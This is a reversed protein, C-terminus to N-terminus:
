RAQTITTRYSVTVLGDSTASGSYTGTGKAGKFSGTGNTIKLHGDTLTATGDPNYTVKTKHTGSVTGREYYAKFTGSVADASPKNVFTIAGDGYKRDVVIGACRMGGDREPSLRHTQITGASRATRTAGLAASAGVFACLLVCLGVYITRM